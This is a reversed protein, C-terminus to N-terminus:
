LSIDIERKKVCDFIERLSNGNFLPSPAYLDYILGGFAWIDVSSDYTGNAKNEDILEPAM